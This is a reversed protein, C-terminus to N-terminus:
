YANYEFDKIGGTMGNGIRISQSSAHMSRFECKEQVVIKDNVRVIINGKDFIMSLTNWTGKPMDSLSWEVTYALKGDQSINFYYCEDDAHYALSFTMDDLWANWKNIIEVDGDNDILLNMLIRMYTYETEDTNDQLVIHSDGAFNLENETVEVNQYALVTKGLLKEMQVTKETEIAYKKGDATEKFGCSIIKSCNYGEKTLMQALKEGQCILYIEETHSVLYYDKELLDIKGAGEEESIIVFYNEENKEPFSNYSFKEEVANTRLICRVGNLNQPMYYCKNSVNRNLIDYVESYYTVWHQGPIICVQIANNAIICYAFVLGLAIIKQMNKKIIGKLVIVIWYIAIVIISITKISNVSIEKFFYVGPIQMSNMWYDKIEHIQLYLFIACLSYVGTGIVKEKLFCKGKKCMGILGCAIMIGSIGDSYRGYFFVDLRTSQSYDINPPIMFLANVALTGLTLLLIFLYIYATNEIQERKKFGDRVKRLTYVFGTYALMFTATLVYWMKGILSQLLRIWGGKGGLVQKLTNMTSSVGNGGFEGNGDFMLQTLYIRIGRNILYFCLFFLMATIMKKRDIKGTFFMIFILIVFAIISVINRNHTIYLGALEILLILMNFMTTKECFKIMSYIVLLIGTYILCEPWGIYTQFLYASYSSISFSLIGATLFDIKKDIKRIIAIGLAFSVIGMFANMAIALKYMIEMNLSIWFMPILLISYGYSYWVKTANQWPLGNINAAHGWYGVQDSFVFPGRMETIYWLRMGLILISFFIFIGIKKTKEIRSM